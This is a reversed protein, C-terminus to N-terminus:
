NFNKWIDICNASMVELAAQHNEPSSGACLDELVVIRTNPCAARLILANSIVCIDTCLGVMIIKNIEDRKVSEILYKALDLSGFTEKAWWTVVTGKQLKEVLAKEISIELEFGETAPVCHIPINKGEISKHYNNEFHQDQTAFIYGGEFEKIYNCVLPVIAEAEPSGLAGDIFDNQMDIVVLATKNKEMNIARECEKIISKEIQNSLKNVTDELNRKGLIFDQVIKVPKNKTMISTM